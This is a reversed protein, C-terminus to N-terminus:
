KKNKVPNPKPACKPCLVDGGKNVVWGRNHIREAFADETTGWEDLSDGCKDCTIECRTYIADLLLDMNKSM